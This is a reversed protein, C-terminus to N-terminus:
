AHGKRCGAWLAIKHQVGIVGQIQAVQQRRGPVDRVIASM